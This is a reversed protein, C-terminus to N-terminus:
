KKLQKRIIEIINKIESAYKIYNNVDDHCHPIHIFLSKNPYNSLLHYYLNNCVFKGPDISLLVIDSLKDLPLKSELKDLGNEDIKSDKRIIGSNDALSCSAINYSSTEVTLVSRSRAEGLAVILDYEDLNYLGSLEEYCKDYIVDVIAKDVNDIYNIVEMSYNNSAKNFQKFASVLVKM